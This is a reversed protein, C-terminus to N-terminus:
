LHVEKLSELGTSNRLENLLEASVPDDVQVLMLARGRPQDRGLEIGAINIDHKALLTSVAAIVGPRDQNTAILYRGSPEMNVSYDNIRTIRLKGEFHTGAISLKESGVVQLMMSNAYDVARTTSREEVDVGHSRAVAKANIANIRTETYPAFLGRLAEATLVITDREALEGAYTCVVRRLKRGGLQAALSGMRQALEMYPQLAAMEEPLITPANVAYRAAGGSLVAVIQDAVDFAVNVQAEVTSAGLHPTVVVQALQLLPHDRPPPETTFVDIAAGAIHGSAIAEALAAEDIIGGRAVNILRAGKKMARLEGAGIIGRTTDTLPTHVSLVDADRLLADFEVLEVGAQEAREPAVLPDHAIVRMSLGLGAIRAVEFGIKGLGLLGLTKERLETGMFRAREWRGAHLSQDAAAVNRSMAMLMAVAHEAAAITNGTPANLVLVGRRTAEDLDINDVGVGARGVVRLRGAAELLAATVKTESRVVLADYDGIRALLDDPALGTLVDVRGAARLREVGDEAIPDAVLIRAPGSDLSLQAPQSPRSM